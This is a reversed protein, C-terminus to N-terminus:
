AHAGDDYMGIVAQPAQQTDFLQQQVGILVADDIIATVVGNSTAVRATSYATTGFVKQSKAVRQVQGSGAHQILEAPEIEYDHVGGVSDRIRRKVAPKIIRKFGIFDGPNIDIM